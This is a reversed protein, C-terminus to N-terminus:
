VEGDSYFTINENTWAGFSLEVWFHLVPLKEVLLCKGNMSKFIILQNEIQKIWNVYM